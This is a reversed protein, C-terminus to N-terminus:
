RRFGERPWVVHGVVGHPSAGKNICARELQWPKVGISVTVAM